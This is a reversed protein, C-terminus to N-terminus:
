GFWCLFFYGRGVVQLSLSFLKLFLALFLHLTIPALVLVLVKFLSHFIFDLLMSLFSLTIHNSFRLMASLYSQPLVFFVLGIVYRSTFPVLSYSSSCFALAKAFLWTFCNIPIIVCMVSHCLFTSSITLCWLACSFTM